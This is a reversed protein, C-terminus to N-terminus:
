HAPSEPLAPAVPEPPVARRALGSLPVHEGLPETALAAAIRAGIAGTGNREDFRAALARARAALEDHLATVTLEGDHPGPRRVTTDPHGAEAVMRSVVAAAASFRMDAEPSPPESLWGLHREVLELGRAHNGTRACFLIHESVSAMDARDARVSRYARHHAEVAESLRGTRLYPTLLATLISGPQKVCTSVGTLVPMAVAVADEDRERWSLHEVKSTPECGFCDAMEGRPTACWLRYREAAAEVNGVHRALRERRQHVPNLTYGARRYREEMDDLMAHARDLPIEPFRVANAVMWKFQWHLTHDFAPDGDGRDHAALCWAFTVFAKAPEGGLHYAETALIRARYQLDAVGLADAHRIVDEAAAIQARGNPMGWAAGLKERTQEETM